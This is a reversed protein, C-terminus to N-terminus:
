IVDSIRGIRYGKKFLNNIIEPLAKNTESTPHMLVIASDHIKDVVRSVIIDKYSDKRWDITDVSWLITKYGLVDAAKITSENFAGSPPSFYKPSEGIIDEIIKHATNIEQYNTKYDLKDYDLHRYGHNGIEHGESHINLLLEENNESWRGTPFFTIHIKNEKFINLMEDIYENGWDINCAFAVIKEEKTGQYYIDSNFVDVTRSYNWITGLLIIFVLVVTIIIYITKKRIVIFKM